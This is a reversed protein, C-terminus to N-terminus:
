RRKLRGLLYGAAIWAITKQTDKTSPVHELITKYFLVDDPKSIKKESM